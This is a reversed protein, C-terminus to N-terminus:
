IEHKLRILFTKGKEIKEIVGKMLLKKIIRHAKVKGIENSIEAQLVEGKRLLKELIKREDEDFVKLISFIREDIKKEKKEVVENIHYYFASGIIIGLSSFIPIFLPVPIACHGCELSHQVYLTAFSVILVFFSVIIIGIILNKEENM